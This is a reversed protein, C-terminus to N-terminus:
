EGKVVSIDAKKIRAKIVDGIMLNFYESDAHLLQDGKYQRGDATVLSIM